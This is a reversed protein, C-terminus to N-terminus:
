QSFSCSIFLTSNTYGWGGGGVGGLPLALFTMFM